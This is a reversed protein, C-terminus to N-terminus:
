WKFFFFDTKKYIMAKAELLSKLIKSFLKRRTDYMSKRFLHGDSRILNGSDRCNRLEQRM